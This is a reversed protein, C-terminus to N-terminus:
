CNFVILVKDWASPMSDLGLAAQLIIAFHSMTDESSWTRNSVVKRPVPHVDCYGTGRRVAQKLASSDWRLAGGCRGSLM